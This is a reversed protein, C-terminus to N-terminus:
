ARRDAVPRPSSDPVGSLFRHSIEISEFRDRTFPPEQEVYFKRVGSAFAIPLLRRWDIRGSGVEAPDMRMAHNSDTSARLDKVHMLGFRRPHRQLLLLPDVGAAAVWGVDLEFSVSAPDTERLLIDFGTTNGVPAFEPNHNHYGLRLGHGKLAAGKENLLAATRQWDEVTLRPTVRALWASFSEGARAVGLRVPIPFMPVVVDTAGLARVRAALRGLDSDLGPEDRRSEIPVHMSTFRLGAGDAAARLREPTHGHYGALEVARYGIRAIKAFSGEIDARVADSVTYLQLGIPVKRRAFFGEAQAAGAGPMAAAVAAGLGLGLARRRNLMM